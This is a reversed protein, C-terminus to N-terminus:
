KARLIANRVASVLAFLVTGCIAAGIIFAFSSAANENSFEDEPVSLFFQDLVGYTLGVCFGWVGIGLTGWRKMM